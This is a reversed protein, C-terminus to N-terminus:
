WATYGGDFYLNTGTMYSNSTQIISAIFQSVEHSNTMRKLPVNNNYLNQFEASQNNEVGGLIISNFTFNPAKHVAFHRTLQIVAAKSVGYAINKETNHYFNPRPSKVGYISSINLVRGKENYMCFNRCVSFLSIVNVELFNRFINLELKDLKISELNNPINLDTLGFLNILIDAPNNKFWDKVFIEDTLDHGLKVDLKLIKYGSEELLKCLKKGILGEAGTIIVTKM